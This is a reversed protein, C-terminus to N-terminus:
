IITLLIGVFNHAVHAAFSHRISGSKMRLWGLFFSIPLLGVILAPELHCLAFLVSVQFLVQKSTFRKELFEWLAERFLFEEGLPLAVVLIFFTVYQSVGFPMEFFSQVEGSAESLPFISFIALSSAINIGAAGLVPLLYSRM